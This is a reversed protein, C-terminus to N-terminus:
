NSAADVTVNLPFVGETIPSNDISRVNVLIEGHCAILDAEIKRSEADSLGERVLVVEYGNFASVTQRWAKTRGQKQYARRGYGKGVYFPAGTDPHRHEYVYFRDSM